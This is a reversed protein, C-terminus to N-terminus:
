TNPSRFWEVAALIYQFFLPGFILIALVSLAPHIQRVNNYLALFDWGLNFLFVIFPSILTLEFNKTVFGVVIAVAVAGLGILTAVRAAATSNAAGEPKLLFDLIVSNPTTTSCLYDGTCEALLGTFYFLLMLGSLVGFMTALKSM